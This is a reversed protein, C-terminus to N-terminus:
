ETTNGPRPTPEVVIRRIEILQPSPPMADLFKFKAAIEMIKVFSKLDGKIANNLCVEAAALIKPIKRSRQGDRVRVEKMFVAELANATNKRGKPRGAPNGSQGKKFRTRHDNREFESM